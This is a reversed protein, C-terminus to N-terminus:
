EGPRLPAHLDYGFCWCPMPFRKIAVETGTGIALGLGAQALAPADNVGDGVMAVVRGEAQM